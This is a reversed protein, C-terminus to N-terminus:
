IKNIFYNKLNNLNLIFSINKILCESPVRAYKKTLQNSM